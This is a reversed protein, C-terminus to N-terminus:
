RVQYAQELFALLSDHEGRYVIREAKKNLQYDYMPDYYDTLLRMIWQRHHESQALNRHQHLADNM